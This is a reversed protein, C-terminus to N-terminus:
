RTNNSPLSTETEHSVLPDQYNPQESRKKSEDLTIVQNVLEKYNPQESRKKTEDLTIVQNVLQILYLLKNSTQNKLTIKSEDLGTIIHIVLKM